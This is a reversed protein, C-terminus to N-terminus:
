FFFVVGKEMNAFSSDKSKDDCRLLAYLEISREGEAIYRQTPFTREENGVLFVADFEMGKSSHITMLNAVIRGGDESGLEDPAIDAILAADDM